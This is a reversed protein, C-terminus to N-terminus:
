TSITGRNKGIESRNEGDRRGPPDPFGRTIEKPRLRDTYVAYLGGPLFLQYKDFITSIKQFIDLSSFITKTRFSPLAAFTEAPMALLPKGKLLFVGGFFSLNGTKRGSDPRGM